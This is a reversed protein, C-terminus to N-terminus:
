AFQFTLPNRSFGEDVTQRAEHSKSTCDTLDLMVLAVVKDICLILEIWSFLKVGLSEICKLGLLLTVRDHFRGVGMLCTTHPLVLDLIKPTYQVGSQRKRMPSEVMSPSLGYSAAPQM